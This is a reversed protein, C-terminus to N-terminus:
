KYAVIPMVPSIANRHQAPDGAYRCSQSFFDPKGLSRIYLEISRVSTCSESLWALMLDVLWDSIRHGFLNIWLATAGHATSDPNEMNAVRVTTYPHVAFEHLWPSVSFISVFANLFFPVPSPYVISTTLFIDIWWHMAIYKKGICYRNLFDESDIWALLPGQGGTTGWWVGRLGQRWCSSGGRGRGWELTPPHHVVSVSDSSCLRTASTQRVATESVTCEWRLRDWGSRQM